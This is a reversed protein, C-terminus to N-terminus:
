GTGRGERSASDSVSVPLAHVPDTVRRSSEMVRRSAAPEGPRDDGPPGLPAPPQTVDWEALLANLEGPELVRHSRRGEGADERADQRADQRALAQVMQRFLEIPVVAVLEHAGDTVVVPQGSARIRHLEAAVEEGVALRPGMLLTSDVLFASMAPESGRNLHHCAGVFRCRTAGALCRTSPRTLIVLAADAPSGSEGRLRCRYDGARSAGRLRMGRM